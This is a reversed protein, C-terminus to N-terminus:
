GSRWALPFIPSFTHRLPLPLGPNFRILLSSFIRFYFKPKREEGEFAFHAWTPLLHEVVSVSVPWLPVLTGLLGDRKGKHAPLEPM